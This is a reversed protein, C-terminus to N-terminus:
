YPVVHVNSSKIGDETESNVNRLGSEWWCMTKVSLETQCAFSLSPGRSYPSDVM